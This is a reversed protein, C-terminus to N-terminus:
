CTNFRLETWPHIAGLFSVDEDHLVLTRGNTPNLPVEPSVIGFVGILQSCVESERADVKCNSFRAHCAQSQTWDCYAFEELLENEAVEANAADYGIRLFVIESRQLRELLGAEPHDPCNLKM